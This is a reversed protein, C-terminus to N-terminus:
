KKYTKLTTNNSKVYILASDRNTFWIGRRPCYWVVPVGKEKMLREAQKIEAADAEAEKAVEGLKISIDEVPPEKTKAM